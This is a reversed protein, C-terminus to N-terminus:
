PQEERIQRELGALSRAGAGAEVLEVLGNLRDMAWAIRRGDYAAGPTPQGLPLFGSGRLRQLGREVNEVEYCLHHLSVGRKLAGHLKSREGLPAVLELWQRQGPHRLFQVRATQASDDICDSEVRYGFAQVFHEAGELLDHVVFGIHHIRFGVM